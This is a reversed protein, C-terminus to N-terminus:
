AHADPSPHGVVEAVEFLPLRQAAHYARILYEGLLGLLTIQFGSFVLLVMSVLLRDMAAMGLLRGVGYGAGGVLGLGLATVGVAGVVQFPRVSFEILFELTLGVLQFLSYRSPGRSRRQNTVPVEAVTRALRALLAPLFRRMQGYRTTREALERTMAKFGCGHDHLVVGTSRNILRTLIASALRRGVGVETRTTRWGSVLDYGERVKALFAPLAEPDSQLDADLLVVIAGRSEEIGASLAAHQGFHGLLRVMRVRPDRAIVGRLFAPGGDTSGDDVFIVEGGESSGDLTKLLRNTLEPLCEAENLVPIIVSYAVPAVSPAVVRTDAM